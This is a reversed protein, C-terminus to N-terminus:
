ECVLAKDLKTNFIFFPLRILRSGFQLFAYVGHIESGEAFRALVTQRWSRFV